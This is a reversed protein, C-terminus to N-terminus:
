DAYFVMAIHIHKIEYRENWTDRRETYKTYFIFDKTRKLYMELYQALARVFSFSNGSNIYGFYINCPAEYVRNQLKIAVGRNYYHLLSLPPTCQSWQPDPHVTLWGIICIYYSIKKLKECPCDCGHMDEWCMGGITYLRIDLWCPQWSDLILPECKSESHWNGGDMCMFYGWAHM